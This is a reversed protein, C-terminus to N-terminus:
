SVTVCIPHSLELRAPLPLCPIEPIPRAWSHYNRTLLANFSAVDGQRGTTLYNWFHEFDTEMFIAFRREVDPTLPFAERMVTKGYGFAECEYAYFARKFEEDLRLPKPEEVRETLHRYAEYDTFQVLHGFLHAITFLSGATDRSDRNIIIRFDRLQAITVREENGEDLFTVTIGRSALRVVLRELRSEDTLLETNM